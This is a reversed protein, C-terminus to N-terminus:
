IELLLDQRWSNGSQIARKLYFLRCMQELTLIAIHRGTKRFRLRLIEGKGFAAESTATFMHHSTFSLTPSHQPRHKPCWMSSSHFGKLYFFLNVQVWMWHPLFVVLAIILGSHLDSWAPSESYLRNWEECCVCLWRQTASSPWILKHGCHRNVTDTSHHNIVCILMVKIFHVYEDKSDIQTFM